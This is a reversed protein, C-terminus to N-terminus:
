NGSLLPRMYDNPLDLTYHTYLVSTNMSQASEEIIGEDATAQVYDSEFLGDEKKFDADLHEIRYTYRHYDHSLEDFSLRLVDDTGLRMVPLPDATRGNVQVSVTHINKDYIETRQAAGYAVALLAALGTAFFRLRLRNM